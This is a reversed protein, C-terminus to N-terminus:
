ARDQACGRHHSLLWRRRRRLPVHAAGALTAVSALSARTSIVYGAAVRKKAVAELVAETSALQRVARGELGHVAVGRELAVPEDLAPRGESTRVVLQYRALCYPRSYLVRNEFRDDPTVGLIVNCLGRSTLKSPYSDHSSYAWYVRLRLGLEKALLGAIEYDFGSPEPHATSYPLNNQDLGVVLEGASRVRVLGSYAQRSKQVKQMQPELGRNAVGHRIPEGVSHQVRPGVGSFPAFHPVHYRALARAVTGDAILASVALDVHRKLEDDGRNMAIAINWHDEPIDTHAVELNWEPTVHLTWGVNAWLYAYDIQGDNLAKLTALQNRYLRRLYGRQRLSYDAVSGAEAGLRESKAGKLEALDRIHPGNRREVLVYGTGYYPRSYLVKGALEQDDAVLNAAVAEGFVLDCERELLKGIVTEHQIDLWEIRLKLHLREALARALEVDFGPRENRASSYPLNAPDMCAKLEGRDRIRRWTDPFLQQRSTGSFPRRYPVGADEYIRGLDGSAALQAIARNIEVLLPTDKVRAAFGMNWHERPVHDALPRLGLESHQHLHWAAFDADLFAADLRAARFKDLLQERSSFRAVTHDKEAVLVTGAVIGVRKGRLDALSTVGRAKRPVVLGFQAGAYPVSWAVDRAPGSDIPLGIVLDCRGEPLCSWSCQASACWHFEIKRDLIRGVRKVVAM